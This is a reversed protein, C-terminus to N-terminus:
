VVGGGGGGMYPVCNGGNRLISDTVWWKCITCLFSLNLISYFKRRRRSLLSFTTFLQKQKKEFSNSFIDEGRGGLFDRKNSTKTPLIKKKEEKAPLKLFQLKKLSFSIPLSRGLTCNTSLSVLM